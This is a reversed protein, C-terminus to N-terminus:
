DKQLLPTLQSVKIAAFALETELGNYLDLELEKKAAEEFQAADRQRIATFINTVTREGARKGLVGLPKGKKYIQLAHRFHRIAGNWLHQTLFGLGQAFQFQFNSQAKFGQELDTIRKTLDEELTKLRAANQQRLDELEKQMQERFKKELQALAADLASKIRSDFIDLSFKAALGFVATLILGMLGLTWMQTSLVKEYYTEYQKQVRTVYDKEMAASAAKQDASDQRTELERVRDELQVQTHPPPPSTKQQALTPSHTTLLVILSIKFTFRAPM